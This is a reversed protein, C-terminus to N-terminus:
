RIVRHVKSTPSSQMATLGVPFLSGLRGDHSFKVTVSQVNLCPCPRDIPPCVGPPMRCMTTRLQVKSPVSAPMRM